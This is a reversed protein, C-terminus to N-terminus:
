EDNGLVGAGIAGIQAVGLGGPPTGLVLCSEEIECAAETAKPSPHPHVVDIRVRVDIRDNVEHRVSLNEGIEVNGKLMAARGYELTHLSGRM